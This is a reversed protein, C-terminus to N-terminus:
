YGPTPNKFYVRQGTVTSEGYSENKQMPVVTMKDAVSSDRYLYLTDGSRLNFNMLYTEYVANNKCHLLLASGESLIIDPLPYMGPEQPDVTLSYDALSVPAGGANRVEVWDSSGSASIESIILCPEQSRKINVKVLVKGDQVDDRDIVLVRDKVETGNVSWSVFECGSGTKAEFIVPCDTYYVGRFDGSEASISGGDFTVTCGQEPAKVSLTYTEDLGFYKEIHKRLKEPRESLFQAIDEVFETRDKGVSDTVQEGFLESNEYLGIQGNCEKLTNLANEEKLAGSLMYNLCNVFYAKYEESRLMCYLVNDQKKEPDLLVEFRDDGAPAYFARDFDYILTHLRGDTYPLGEISDGTYRWIEVNNGPWDLNNCYIEFAFYSLLEEVAVKEELAQRNEELSLDAKFLDLVGSAKFATIDSYEFAEIEDQNFIGYTEAIYDNSFSPQLQAISYYEGNLYVIVPVAAAAGDIGCEKALASCLFTRVFSTDRDQGGNRLIMKNFRTLQSLASEEAYQESFVDWRIKGNDPDYEDRACIKLTKIDLYSSAGGSVTLGAYQSIINEGNQFVDIRSLREYEQGRLVKFNAPVQWAPRKGADDSNLYDDYIKGPVLIGNEYGFLGDNDSTVSVVTVKSFLERDSCIIYTKTVSESIEGKYIVAARVPIVTVGYGEKEEMPIPDSYVKSQLTPDDGNLTYVIKASGPVSPDLTIELEFAKDSYFGDKSFRIYEGSKELFREISALSETERIVAAALTSLLLLALVALWIIRAKKM